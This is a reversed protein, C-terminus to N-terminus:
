TRFDYSGLSLNANAHNVLQVQAYKPQTLGFAGSKIAITQWATQMGGLIRSMSGELHGPSPSTRPKKNPGLKIPFLYCLMVTYMMCALVIVGFGM